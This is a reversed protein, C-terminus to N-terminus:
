IGFTQEFLKHTQVHDNIYSEPHSSKLSETIHNYLDFATFDLDGLHRFNRSEKLERKVTSMQTISLIQRDFFLLGLIKYIEDPSVEYHKLENLQQVNHEFSEELMKFGSDINLFVEQETTSTDEIFTGKHIRRYQYDGSICGNECIWVVSGCVFAFSMSKDYSNRFMIRQGFEGNDTTINYSGIVGRILGEKSTAVRYNESKVALGANQIKLDILNMITSNALPTYTGNNWPIIPANYVDERKAQINVKM